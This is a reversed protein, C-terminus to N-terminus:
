VCSFILLTDKGNRKWGDHINNDVIFQKVESKSVYDILIKPCRNNALKAFDETTVLNVMSYESIRHKITGGLGDIPGKGHSTAFFHWSVQRVEPFNLTVVQCISFKQKFHQGTGDSFLKLSTIEYDYNRKALFQNVM